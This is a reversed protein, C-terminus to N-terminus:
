AANLTLSFTGTATTKPKKIDATVTVKVSYVEAKDKTSTKGSIVGTSASIKLGKPLGTAKWKYPTPGNAAYLTDSYSSGLTAAPLPSSSMIEFAAPGPNADWVFRNPDSSSSTFLVQTNWYDTVTGGSNTCAIGAEWVGQTNSDQYLLTSLGVGDNSVLPGWELDNPINIIQGTSPATNEDGWYTGDAEVLGYQNDSTNPLNDPFTVTTVNTGPEVLYSYVRYGDSESDGSCAAQAPLSVTFPTESGGSALYTTSDPSATTAVGDLTSAGVPVAALTLTGVAMLLGAGLAM